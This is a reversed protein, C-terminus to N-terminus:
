TQRAVHAAATMSRAQLCARAAAAADHALIARTPSGRRSTRPAPALRAAATIARRNSTRM